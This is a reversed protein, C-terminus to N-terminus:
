NGGMMDDTFRRPRFGAQALIAAAADASVRERPPETPPALAARKVALTAARAKMAIGYIAGADPRLLAGRESRPGTRQYEAWADRFEAETLGDVVDLWGEVEVAREAPEVDAQFFQRLLTLVRVAMRARHTERQGAPPPLSSANFITMASKM